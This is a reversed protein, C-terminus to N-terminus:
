AVRGLKGFFIHRVIRSERKERDRRAALYNRQQNLYHQFRRAQGSVLTGGGFYGIRPETATGGISLGIKGAATYTSDSATGVLSGNHYLSFTNGILTFGVVDGATINPLFVSAGFQEYGGSVVRLCRWEDNTPSHDRVRPVDIAYGNPASGLGADLLRTWLRIVGADASPAQEVQAYVEVDPGYNQDNRYASGLLGTTAERGRGSADTRLAEDFQAGNIVSTWRGGDSLPNESPREFDEIIPTTPFAM